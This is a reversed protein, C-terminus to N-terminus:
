HAMSDLGLFASEAKALTETWVMYGKIRAKRSKRIRDLIEIPVGVNTSDLHESRCGLLEAIALKGITELNHKAAISLTILPNCLLFPEITRGSKFDHYRLNVERQFWHFIVPIDYKRAAEMIDSITKPDLPPSVTKPDIYDLLPELIEAREAVVQPNVITKRFLDDEDPSPPPHFIGRLYESAYSLVSKPFYCIVGDSSQLSVDGYGEPFRESVKTEM